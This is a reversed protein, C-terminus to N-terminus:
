LLFYSVATKSHYKVANQLKEEKCSQLLDRDFLQDFIDKLAHLFVHPLKASADPNYKAVYGLEDANTRDAQWKSFVILPM